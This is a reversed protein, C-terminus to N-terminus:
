LTLIKSFSSNKNVLLSDAGSRFDQDVSFTANKFAPSNLLEETDQSIFSRNSMNSRAGPSTLHNKHTKSASPKTPTRFKEHILPQTIKPLNEDVLISDDLLNETSQELYKNFNPNTKSTLQDGEKLNKKGTAACTELGLLKSQINTLNVSFDKGHFLNNYFIILIKSFAHLAILTGTIITFYQRNSLQSPNSLFVQINPAYLIIGVM